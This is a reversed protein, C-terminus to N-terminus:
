STRRVEAPKPSLEPSLAEVDGAVSAFRKLAEPVDQGAACAREVDAARASLRMLGLMGAQSIIKHAMHAVEGDAEGAKAVSLRRVEGRLADVHRQLLPPAIIASIRAFVAADFAPKTVEDEPAVPQATCFRDIAARVRDWDIPKMLVGNMGARLCKEQETMMVNATLALIPLDGRPKPLQRILRTAELGDLVPMHVDMLILDFATRSALALAEEGDAAITVSHGDRELM